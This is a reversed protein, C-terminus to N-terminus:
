QEYLFTVMLYYTVLMTIMGFTLVDMVNRVKFGKKRVNWVLYLFGSAGGLLLGRTGGTFFLIGIPNTFLISPRFLVLSFKYILLCIVLGNGVENLLSTQLEPYKRVRIEMVIYSLLGAIFLVIWLNKILFPGITISDYLM